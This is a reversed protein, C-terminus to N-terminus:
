QLAEGETCKAHQPHEIGTADVRPDSPAATTRAWSTDLAVRALGALNTIRPALSPRRLAARVMDHSRLVADLRQMPRTHGEAILHVTQRMTFGPGQPLSVKTIQPVSLFVICGTSARTTGGANRAVLSITRAETLQVEYTGSAALGERGDVTVTDAGPADWTIRTTLGMAAPNGDVTIDAFQPASTVAKLQGGVLTLDEDGKGLDSDGGPKAELSSRFARRVLAPVMALFLFTLWLITIADRTFSAVRHAELEGRWTTNRGLAGLLLVLVLATWVQLVRDRRLPRDFVTTRTM